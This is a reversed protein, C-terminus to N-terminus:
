FGQYQLYNGNVKNSKLDQEQKSIDFYQTSYRNSNNNNNNTNISTTNNYTYNNNTDFNNISYASMQNTEFSNNIKSPEEKICVEKYSKSELSPKSLHHQQQEDYYSNYNYFGNTNASNSVSCRNWCNEYLNTNQYGNNDYFQTQQHYYPWIENNSSTQNYENTFNPALYSTLSNAPATSAVLSSNVNSVKNSNNNLIPTTSWYYDNSSYVTPSSNPKIIAEKKNSCTTSKNLNFSKKFHDDIANLVDGKFYVYLISKTNLYESYLPKTTSTTTTAAAAASNTMSQENNISHYCGNLKRKSNPLHRESNNNYNSKKNNNNTIISGTSCLSSLSSSSSTSSPPTLNNSQM